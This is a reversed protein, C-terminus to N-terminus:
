APDFATPQNRQELLKSESQIGGNRQGAVMKKVVEKAEEATQQPTHSKIYVGSIAFGFGGWVVLLNEAPYDIMVTAGLPLVEKGVVDAHERLMTISM